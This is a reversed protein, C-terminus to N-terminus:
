SRPRREAARCEPADKIERIPADKPGERTEAPRQNVAIAALRGNATRSKEYQKTDECYKETTRKYYFFRLTLNMTSPTKQAATILTNRVTAELVRLKVHENLKLQRNRLIGKIVRESGMRNGLWQITGPEAIGLRETIEKSPLKVRTVGTISLATTHDMLVTVRPGHGSRKAIENRNTVEYLLPTEPEGEPQPNITTRRSEEVIREGISRVGLGLRAEHQSVGPTMAAKVEAPFIGWFASGQYWSKRAENGDKVHFIAGAALLRIQQDSGQGLITYACAHTWKM